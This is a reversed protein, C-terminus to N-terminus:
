CSIGPNFLSYTGFSDKTQGYFSSSNEEMRDHLPILLPIIPLLKMMKKRVAAGIIYSIKVAILRKVKGIM